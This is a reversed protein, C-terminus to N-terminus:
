KRVHIGHAAIVLVGLENVHGAGEVVVTQDKTVGLLKRADIPLLKGEEDNFQVLATANAKEARRRCFPCTAPDHGDAHAHGDDDPLAEAIMFAAEGEAWPEVEGGWIRGVVVVDDNDGSTAKDRSDAITAAGPPEDALLFKERLAATRPDSSTCGALTAVLVAALPWFLWATHRM